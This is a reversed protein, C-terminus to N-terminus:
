VRVKNMKRPTASGRNRVKGLFSDKVKLNKDAYVEAAGVGSNDINMTQVIFSGAQLSGVGSNKIVADQGKGSLKINGVSTNNLDLKNVSLKLDVNGVSKNTMDLDDFTLQQECGVNGVTSLNLEKLKKFSVYVKMKGKTKLNKNKLKDMDIVLKNGDNRVNFYEMLNEDAEIKVSEKNDQSLKLEYVGSAQLADFSTVPVERTVVKGNGEITENKEKQAAATNVLFLGSIAALLLRTM